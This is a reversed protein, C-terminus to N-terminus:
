AGVWRASVRKRCLLQLLVPAPVYCSMPQMTLARCPCLLLLIHQWGLYNAVDSTQTTPANMSACAPDCAGICSSCCSTKDRCV